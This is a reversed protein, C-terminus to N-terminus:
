WEQQMGSWYGFIGISIVELSVLFWWFDCRLLIVQLKKGSTKPDRDVGSVALLCEFFIFLANDEKGVWESSSTSVRGLRWGFGGARSIEILIFKV